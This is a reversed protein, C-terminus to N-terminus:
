IIRSSLHSCLSILMKKGENDEISDLSKIALNTFNNIDEKVLYGLTSKKYIDLYYNLNETTIKNSHYGDILEEYKPIKNEIALVFLYNKKFNLLDKGISKGFKEEEGFVDLYDDKIQFSIGLYKGYQSLAEIESKSAECLAGTIQCIAKILIATKEEVMLLYDEKTISLKKDYLLELSQGECMRICSETFISIVRKTNKDTCNKLLELYSLAIMNDGALISISKGFEVHTTKGGRRLSSNDIIDDHILSFNHIIEFAVAVNYVHSYEYGLTKSVLFSLLPRIRKGGSAFQYVIPKYLNEPNFTSFRNQLDTELVNMVKNIEKLESNSFISEM